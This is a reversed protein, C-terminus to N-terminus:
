VESNSDSVTLVLKPHSALITDPRLTKLPLATICNISFLIYRLLFENFASFTSIFILFSFIRCCILLINPRYTNCLKDATTIPLFKSKLKLDVTYHISSSIQFSICKLSLSFFGFCQDHEIRIFYVKLKM